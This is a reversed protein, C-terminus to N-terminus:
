VKKFDYRQKSLQELEMENGKALRTIYLALAAMAIPSLPLWLM